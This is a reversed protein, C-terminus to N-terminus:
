EPILLRWFNGDGELREILDAIRKKAAKAAAKNIRGDDLLQNLRPDRLRNLWIRTRAPTLLVERATALEDITWVNTLDASSGAMFGFGNDIAVLKDGILVNGAHRDTNGLIM